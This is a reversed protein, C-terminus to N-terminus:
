IPLNYKSTFDNVTLGSTIMLKGDGAKVFKSNFDSKKQIYNCKILVNRSIDHIQGKNIIKTKEEEV